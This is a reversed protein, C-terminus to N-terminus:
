NRIKEQECASTSKVLYKFSKKCNSPNSLGGFFFKFSLQCQLIGALFLSFVIRRNELVLGFYITVKEENDEFGAQRFPLEQSVTEGGNQALILSSKPRLTRFGFVRMLKVNWPVLYSKLFKWRSTTKLLHTMIPLTTFSWLMQKWLEESNKCTNREGRMHM